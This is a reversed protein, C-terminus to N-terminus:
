PRTQNVSVGFEDGVGALQGGLGPVRGGVVLVGFTVATMLGSVGAGVILIDTEIM